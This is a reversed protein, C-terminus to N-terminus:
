PDSTVPVVWQVQGLSMYVIAGREAGLVHAYQGIQSAYSARAALCRSRCREELRVRHAAQRVSLWRTPAAPWLGDHEGALRGYIPVEAVLGAKHEALEPLSWTRLATEALEDLDLDPTAASAGFNRCFGDRENACRM